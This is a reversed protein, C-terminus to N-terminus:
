GPHYDRWFLRPSLCPDNYANRLFLATRGSASVLPFERFFRLEYMVRCYDMNRLSFREHPYEFLGFSITHLNDCLAIRLGNVLMRDDFLQDLLVHYRFILDKVRSAAVPARYAIANLSAPDPDIRNELIDLIVVGQIKADARIQFIKRELFIRNIDDYRTHDKFVQTMRLGNEGLEMAYQLRTAIQNKHRRVDEANHRNDITHYGITEVGVNCVFQRPGLFRINERGM